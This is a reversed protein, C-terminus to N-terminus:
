VLFPMIYERAVNYRNGCDIIVNNSLIEKAYGIGVASSNNKANLKSYIKEFAKKVTSDTVCLIEAIERNKFGMTSLSLYEVERGTLEHNFREM